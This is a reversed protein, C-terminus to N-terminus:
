VIRNRYIDLETDGSVRYPTLDPNSFPDQFLPFAGTEYGINTANPNIEGLVSNNLDLNAPSQPDVFGIPGLFVHDPLQYYDLTIWKREIQSYIFTARCVVPKDPIAINEGFVYFNTLRAMSFKAIPNGCKNDKIDSLTPASYVYIQSKNVIHDRTSAQTYNVDPWIRFFFEYTFGDEPHAICQEAIPVEVPLYICLGQDLDPGDYNIYNVTKAVKANTHEFVMVTSYNQRESILRAEDTPPIVEFSNWLATKDDPWFAYNTTPFIEVSKQYISDPDRTKLSSRMSINTESTSINKIDSVNRLVFGVADVTARWRGVTSKNFPPM